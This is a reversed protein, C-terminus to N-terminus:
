QFNEHVLASRAIWDQDAQVTEGNNRCGATALAAALIGALLPPTKLGSFRAVPYWSPRM